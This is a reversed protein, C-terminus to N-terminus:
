IPVRTFSNPLAQGFELRRQREPESGSGQTTSPNGYDLGDLPRDTLFRTVLDVVEAPRELHVPHDADRITTFRADTCHRAAKRDLAATTPM